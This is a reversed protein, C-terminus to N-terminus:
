PFRRELNAISKGIMFKFMGPGIWGMPPKGPKAMSLWTLWTGGTPHPECTLVGLHDTFMGMLSADSASYALLGPTSAGAGSAPAEFAVVTELTPKVAPAEIVRVAGVGGPTQARSNDVTCRKMMPMWEPLRPFDTIFAFIDEPKAALRTAFEVSLPSRTLEAARQKAYPSPEVPTSMRAEKKLV